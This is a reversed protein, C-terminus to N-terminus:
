AGGRDARDADGSGLRQDPKGGGLPAQDLRGRGDAGAAHDGPHPRGDAAGPIPDVDTAPPHRAPVMSPSLPGCELLQAIWEADKVDTKRRSIAKIHAANVLWADMVEALCYFAPKWYTSTSEMAAIAVGKALLWDRMAQLSRTMTPYTRVESVRRGNPGPMRVCVTLTANGIDLGAVREFLLEV